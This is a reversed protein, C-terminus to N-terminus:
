PIRTYVSIHRKHPRPNSERRRWWNRLGRPGGSISARKKHGHNQHDCITKSIASWSNPRFPIRDAERHVNAASQSRNSLVFRVPNGNGAYVCFVVTNYTHM